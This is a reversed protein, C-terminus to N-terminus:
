VAESCILQLERRREGTEIVAEINLTRSDHSVRMQPTVDSRYRMTVRHSVQVEPRQADIFERGNLPEVNAWVTALASWTRTVEGISNRAETAQQITVRHRLKGARM